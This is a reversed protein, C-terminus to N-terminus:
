LRAPDVNHVTTATDAMFSRLNTWTIGASGVNEQLENGVEFAFITSLGKYRQVIPAVANKLYASRQAADTVIGPKTTALTNIFSLYLYVHNQGAIRVLDDLNNVFTPDLGSVNGASDFQLGELNEFLWVRAVNAKMKAVDAFVAQTRASNYTTGWSPHQPNVGIDHDYQGDIWPVNIGHIVSPVGGLPLTSECASTTSAVSQQAPALMGVLALSTSVTIASVAAISRHRGFRKPKAPSIIRQGTLLGGQSGKSPRM